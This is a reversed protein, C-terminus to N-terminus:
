CAPHLPRNFKGGYLKAPGEIAMKMEMRNLRPVLYQSKNLTEPLGHFQTCDGIFDSRMTLVVFFPINKQQSLELM